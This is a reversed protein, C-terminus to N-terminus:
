LTTKVTSKSPIILSNGVKISNPGVALPDELPFIISNVDALFWWKEADQFNEHAIYDLEQGAEIDIFKPNNGIHNSNYIKRSHIFKKVLGNKDQILTIKSTAYRSGAYIVM